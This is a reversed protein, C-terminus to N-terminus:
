HSQKGDIPPEAKVSYALRFGYSSRPSGQWNCHRSASRCTCVSSHWCGSRIVRQYAADPVAPGVPDIGAPYDGYWDQCWESANGHMDYLGWANPKKQGLPHIKNGINMCWGMDNMVGTGAFPGASGARCAYEWEAETPLGFGIGAKLSFGQCDEWSVRDVPSQWYDEKLNKRGFKIRRTPLHLYVIDDESYEVPLTGMVAWWQRRTVEYKGLWFGRTLTVEHQTENPERGAETVPSGMLFKGSPCWVMEMTAKGGLDAMWLDGAQHSGPPPSLTGPLSPPMAKTEPPRVLILVLALVALMGVALCLWFKRSQTM